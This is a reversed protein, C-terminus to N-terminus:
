LTDKIEMLQRRMERLKDLAKVRNEVSRRDEELKQRAGTLTYGKIRVLFRIQKLSEIDAPTFMRDGKANRYPKIFRSFCNSWYRVRSEPEELMRSVEGLKYYLPEM